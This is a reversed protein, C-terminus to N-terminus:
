YLKVNLFWIICYGKLSRNKGKVYLCIRLIIYNFIRFDNQHAWEKWQLFIQKIDRTHNKFQWSNQNKVVMIFIKESRIMCCMIAIQNVVEWVRVCLNVSRNKKWLLYILLLCITIHIAIYYIMKDIFKNYICRILSLKIQMAVKIRM